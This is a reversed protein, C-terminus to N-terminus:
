LWFPSPGIIVETFRIPLVPSRWHLPTSANSLFTPITLLEKGLRSLLWENPLLSSRVWINYAVLYYYIAYV